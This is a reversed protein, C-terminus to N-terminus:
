EKFHSELEIVKPGGLFKPGSNAVFGSITGSKIVNHVALLEEESYSAGLDFQKNIFPKNGGEKVLKKM